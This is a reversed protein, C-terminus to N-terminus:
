NATIFRCMAYIAKGQLLKTMCLSRKNGQSIVLCVLEYVRYNPDFLILIFPSPNIHANFLCTRTQNPLTAQDSNREQKFELNGLHLVASLIKFIASFNLFFHFMNPMIQSM